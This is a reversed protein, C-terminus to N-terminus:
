KLNETMLSSRKESLGKFGGVSRSNTVMGFVFDDELTEGDHTIKIHYSPINFLRKTGELVYALIVWFM